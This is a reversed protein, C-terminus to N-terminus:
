REFRNISTITQIHITTSDKHEAVSIAEDRSELMWHFLLTNVPDDKRGHIIVITNTREDM